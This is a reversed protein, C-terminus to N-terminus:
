LSELKLLDKKKEMGWRYQSTEGNSKIVRHCPILLGIVNKACVSAVARVAKPKGIKKALQSYSVTKGISITKIANWVMIQFTTGTMKLPISQLALASTKDNSLYCIITDLTYKLIPPFIISNEELYQIANEKNYHENFETLLINKDDGLSLWIINDEINALLIFGISTKKITYTINM